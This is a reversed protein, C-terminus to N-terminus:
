GCDHRGQGGSGLCIIFTTNPNHLTHTLQQYSLASGRRIHTLRTNLRSLVITDTCCFLDFYLPTPSITIPSTPTPTHYKILISFLYSTNGHTTTLLPYQRIIRRSPSEFFGSRKVICNSKFKCIREFTLKNNRGAFMTTTFHLHYFNLFYHQYDNRTHNWVNREKHSIIGETQKKGIFCQIVLFLTKNGVSLRM